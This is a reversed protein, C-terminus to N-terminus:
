HMLEGSCALLDVALGGKLHFKTYYNRGDRYNDKTVNQISSKNTASITGTDCSRAFYNIVDCIIEYM